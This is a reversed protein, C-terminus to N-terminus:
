PPIYQIQEVRYNIWNRGPSPPLHFVAAKEKECLFWHNIQMHYTILPACNLPLKLSIIALSCMDQSDTIKYDWQSTQRHLRASRMATTFMDSLLTERVLWANNASIVSYVAEWVTWVHVSMGPTSSVTEKHVSIYSQGGCTCIRRITQSGTLFFWGSLSICQGGQM